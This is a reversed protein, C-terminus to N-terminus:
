MRAIALDKRSKMYYVFVSALSDQALGGNGLGPWRLKGGGLLSLVQDRPISYIQGEM